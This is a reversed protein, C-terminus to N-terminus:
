YVRKEIDASHSSSFQRRKGIRAWQAHVVHTNRDNALRGRAKALEFLSHFIGIAPHAFVILCFLLLILWFSVSLAKM